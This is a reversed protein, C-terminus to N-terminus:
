DPLRERHYNSILCLLALLALALAVFLSARVGGPEAAVFRGASRLILAAGAFGEAATHFIMDLISLGAGVAARVPLLGEGVARVGLLALALASLALCLAAARRREVVRRVSTMDTQARAKVVRAFDEPLEVKKQARAFAADLLCLLRRQESLAGACPACARLHEEFSSSEAVSLEGDLYAAVDTCDCPPRACGGGDREPTTAAKTTAEDLNM